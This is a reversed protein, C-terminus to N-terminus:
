RYVEVLEICLIQSIHVSFTYFICSFVKFIRQIPFRYM